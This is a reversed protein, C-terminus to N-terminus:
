KEFMMYEMYFENFDKDASLSIEESVSVIKELEQRRTM